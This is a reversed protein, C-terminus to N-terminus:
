LIAQSPLVEVPSHTRVGVAGSAMGDVFCCRPYCNLERRRPLLNVKGRLLRM